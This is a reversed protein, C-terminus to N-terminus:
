KELRLLKLWRLAEVNDGSDVSRSGHLRIRSITLGTTNRSLYRIDM